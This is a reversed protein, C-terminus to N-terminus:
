PTPPPPQPNQFSKGPIDIEKPLLEGSGLGVSVSSGYARVVEDTPGFAAVRGSQLWLTEETLKRIVELDHSVLILTAGRQRLLKLREMGKSQFDADGISWVEDMLIIEAEVHTAVSFGLRMQMGFSYHKLPMNLFSRVGAFEVISDFKKQIERRRMGLVIGNLFINERGTLDPQMGAFLELLSVIRGHVIVTGSTPQTVGAIIRLLSTKGSGNPGIIGLWKGPGAVTLNVKDLAWFWHSQAAKRRLALGALLQVGMLGWYRKSVDILRIREM